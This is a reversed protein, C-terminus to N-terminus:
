IILSKIRVSITNFTFDLLYDNELIIKIIFEFNKQYFELHLLLFAKDVLSM